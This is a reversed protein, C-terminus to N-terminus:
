KSLTLSITYEASTIGAVAGVTEMWDVVAGVQESRSVESRVLGEAAEVMKWTSFLPWRFSQSDYNLLWLTSYEPICTEDDCLKILAATDRTVPYESSELNIGWEILLKSIRDPRTDSDIEHVCIALGSDSSAFTRRIVQGLPERTRLITYNM